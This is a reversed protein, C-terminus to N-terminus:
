RPTNLRHNWLAIYSNENAAFAATGPAGATDTAAFLGRVAYLRVERDADALATGLPGVVAPTAIMSLAYAAARRVGVDKSHLLSSLAPVVEPSKAHGQILGAVISVTYAIGPSPNMLLPAINNLYEAHGLDILCGAAWLRPVIADANVVAKLAGNVTADPMTELAEAASGYIVQAQLFRGRLVLPQANPAPFLGQGSLEVQAALHQVGDYPDTLIEPSTTLVLALEDAVATLPDPPPAPRPGAGPSAVLAPHFPDVASFRGDASTKLFFIGYQRGVIAAFGPQSLDLTAKVPNGARGKLVRDVTITLRETPTASSRDINIATARGVVILDAGDVLAPVDLAPIPRAGVSGASSVCALLVIALVGSRVLAAQSIMGLM